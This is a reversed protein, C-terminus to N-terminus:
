KKRLWHIFDSLAQSAYNMLTSGTKLSYKFINNVENKSADGMSDSAYSVFGSVINQFGELFSDKLLNSSDHRKDDLEDTAIFGFFNGLFGGAFSAGVSLVGITTLAGGIPGGVCTATLLIGGAMAALSGTIMLFKGWDFQGFPDYGTIPNNGCYAFLNLGSLDHKDLYEFCDPSIFRCLEPDYYRSNLYYLKTEVPREENSPM